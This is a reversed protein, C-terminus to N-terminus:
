KHILSNLKAALAPKLGVLIRQEDEAEKKKGLQLDAVGLNYHAEAYDPKLRAAESFENAADSLRGLAAYSLGLNNHPKSLTPDLKITEKYSRIAEEYDGVDSYVNGLNYYSLIRLDDKVAWFNATKFASIAENLKGLETLSLALVYYLEDWEPSAKIAEKLEAVAAEYKGAKYNEVGKAYHDDPDIIERTAAGAILRASADRTSFQEFGRATVPKALARRPTPSPNPPATRQGFSSVAAFLCVAILVGARFLAHVTRKTTQTKLLTM